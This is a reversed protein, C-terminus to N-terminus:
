NASSDEAVAVQRIFKGKQYRVTVHSNPCRVVTISEGLENSVNFFRCDKLEPPLVPYSREEYSPTCAVLVTTSVVCLALAIAVKKTSLANM